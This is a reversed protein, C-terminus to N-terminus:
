ALHTRIRQNWSRLQIWSLVLVNGIPIGGILFMLVSTVIISSISSALLADRAQPTSTVLTLIVTLVEAVVYCLVLRLWPLRRYCSWSVPLSIVSCLIALLATFTFVADVAGPLERFLQTCFMSGVFSAAAVVSSIWAFRINFM